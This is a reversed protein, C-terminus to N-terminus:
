EKNAIKNPCCIKIINRLDLNEEHQHGHNEMSYYRSRSPKLLKGGRGAGQRPSHHTHQQICQDIPEERQQYHPGTHSLQGLRKRCRKNLTESFLLTSTM